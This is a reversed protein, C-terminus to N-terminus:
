VNDKRMEKCTLRRFTGAGEVKEEGELLFQITSSLLSAERFTPSFVGESHYQYETFGGWGSVPLNLRDTPSDVPCVGRRPRQRHLRNEPGDRVTGGRLPVAGYLEVRTSFVTRIGLGTRSGRRRSYPLFVMKWGLPRRSRTQTGALSSFGTM